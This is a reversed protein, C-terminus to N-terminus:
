GGDRGDLVLVPAGPTFLYPAYLHPTWSGNEIFQRITEMTVVSPSGTPFDDPIRVVVQMTISQERGDIV